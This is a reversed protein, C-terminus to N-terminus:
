GLVLVQTRTMAGWQHVIAPNQFLGEEVRISASATLYVNRTVPPIGVVSVQIHHLEEPTVVVVRFSLLCMSLELILLAPSALNATDEHGGDNIRPVIHLEAREQDGRVIVARHGPREALGLECRRKLPRQSDGLLDKSAENVTIVVSAKDMEVDLWGVDSKVLKAVHVEQVEPKGTNKGSSRVHWGAGGRSCLPVCRRLLKAGPRRM